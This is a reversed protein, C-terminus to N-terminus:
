ETLKWICQKCAGGAQKSELPLDAVTGVQGRGGPMTPSTAPLFPCSTDGPVLQHLFDEATRLQWIADEYDEEAVGAYRGRCRLTHAEPAM